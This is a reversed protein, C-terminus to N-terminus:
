NTDSGVLNGWKVHGQVESWGALIQDPTGM